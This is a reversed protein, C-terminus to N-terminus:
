YRLLAGVGFEKVRPNDEVVEVEGGEEIVKTVLAEAADHIEMFDGGCFPCRELAHDTIYGCHKCQYGPEHYHRDIVLTQIRGEHAAGLTDALRIVGNGGKAAATFVADVVAEKRGEEVQQLIELSRERIEPEPANMDASFAGIVRDQLYKPLADQFRAVMGDSGALILRQPEYRQCFTEMAQVAGRVNRRVVEEEHQSSIPAGGRRGHGGSSGRGRKLKRVDEGVFEDSVRLEGLDFLFFRAQRRDVVAVAYSGYADVLEALPTIYPRHAVTAGSPVAIALSYTRWFGEEQCSFVAAGRGSWDYEHDFFVEVAEIDEAAAANEVQKLMQRLELRYEDRTRDTPDVNLYVSLVPTESRYAALERLEEQNFM